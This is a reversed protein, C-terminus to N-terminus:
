KENKLTDAPSVHNINIGQDQVFCHNQFVFQKQKHQRNLVQKM